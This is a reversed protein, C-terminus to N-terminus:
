SPVVTRLADVYPASELHGSPRASVGLLRVGARVSRDATPGSLWLVSTIAIYGGFVLGIESGPKLYQQLEAVVPSGDAEASESSMDAVSASTSIQIVFDTRPNPM